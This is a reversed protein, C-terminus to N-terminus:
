EQWVVSVINKYQKTPVCYEFFPSDEEDGKLEFWTSKYIPQAKDNGSYIYNYGDEIYELAVSDDPPTQTTNEKVKVWFDNSKKWYKVKGKYIYVIFLPHVDLDLIRYITSTISTKFRNALNKVLKPSFAEKSAEERFLKEPMLLESAFDNAEWEQKGKKAQNEANKFWNLTNSNEDHVELDLKDHMLLHGVEHAATFRKREDYPIESNVKIIAKSKGRIIKGDSNNIPEEIYIAGLSSVIRKMPIKSIEGMGIENLFQKARTSGRRNKM